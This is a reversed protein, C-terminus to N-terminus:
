AAVVRDRLVRTVENEPVDLYEFAWSAIRAVVARRLACSPEPPVWADGWSQNLAGCPQCWSRAFCSRCEDIEDTCVPFGAPDCTAGDDSVSDIRYAPYGYFLQCPYVGGDPGVALDRSGAPCGGGSVSAPVGHLMPLLLDKFYVEPTLRGGSLLREFWWDVAEEYSEILPELYPDLLPNLEAPAPPYATDFILKPVGLENCFEFLDVLSFGERVHHATYVSEMAHPLGAEQVAGLTAVVREYTAGDRHDPRLADHIEPPGDLSITTELQHRRLLELTRAPDVPVGNTVIGFRPRAALEGEEVMVLVEEIAAEIGDLNLTPEGGFFQIFSCNDCGSLVSRVIQRATEPRMSGRVPDNPALRAFCYHCRLNCAENMVLILRNLSRRDGHESCSHGAM